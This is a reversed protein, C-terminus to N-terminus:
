TFLVPWSAVVVVETLGAGTVLAVVNVWVVKVVVVTVGVVVLVVVGIVHVVLLTVEGGEVM